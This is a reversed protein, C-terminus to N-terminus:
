EDTDEDDDLANIVKCGDVQCKRHVNGGLHSRELPGWQHEHGEQFLREAADSATVGTLRWHNIWDWWGLATGHAILKDATAKDKARLAKTVAQNYQVQKRDLMTGEVDRASDFADISRM